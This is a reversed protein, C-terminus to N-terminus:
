GGIRFRRALHATPLPAPRPPHQPSPETENTEGPADEVVEGRRKMANVKGRLMKLEAYHQDVRAELGDVADRTALMERRSPCAHTFLRLFWALMTRLM